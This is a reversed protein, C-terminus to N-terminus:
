GNDAAMEAIYAPLEDDFGSESPLNLCGDRVM